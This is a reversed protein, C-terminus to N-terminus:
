KCFWHESVMGEEIVPHPDHSTANGRYGAQGEAGDAAEVWTPFGCVAVEDGPGLLMEEFVLDSTQAADGISPHSDLYRQARGSNTGAGTTMDSRDVVLDPRWGLANVVVCGGTSDKLHFPVSAHEDHIISPEVQRRRSGGLIRLRWAVCPTESFPSTLTAGDKLRVRGVLRARRGEVLDRSLCRPVAKLERRLKWLPSRRREVLSGVGQAVFTGAVLLFAGAFALNM